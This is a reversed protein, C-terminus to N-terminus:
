GGGLLTPDICLSPSGAQVELCAWGPTTCTGANAEGELCLIQSCINLMPVCIPAAGGCDSSGGPDTCPDGFTAEVPENSTTMLGADPVIMSDDMMMEEEPEPPVICITNEYIQGPDCPDDIECGVSTVLLGLTCFLGIRSNMENSKRARMM